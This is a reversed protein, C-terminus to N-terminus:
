DNGVYSSDALSQMPVVNSPLASWVTEFVQSEHINSNTFGFSLMAFRDMEILVCSQM